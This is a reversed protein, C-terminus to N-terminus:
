GLGWPVNDVAYYYGSVPDKIHLRCTPTFLLTLALFMPIFWHTMFRSRDGYAMHVIVWALGVLLSIRILPQFLTGSRSNILAAIANFTTQLVEGAGYTVITFDM